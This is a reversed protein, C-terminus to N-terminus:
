IEITLYKVSSNGLKYIYTGMNCTVKLLRAQKSVSDDFRWTAYQLSGLNILDPECKDYSNLIKEKQRM